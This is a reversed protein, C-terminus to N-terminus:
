STWLRVLGSTGNHDKALTESVGPLTCVRLEPVASPSGIWSAVIAFLSSNRRARRSEILDHLDEVHRAVTLREDSSARQFPELVRFPDSLGLAVPAMYGGAGPGGHLVIVFDGSSGYSRVQM